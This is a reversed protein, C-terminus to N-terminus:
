IGDTLTARHESQIRLGDKIETFSKKITEKCLIGSWEALISFLTSQKM